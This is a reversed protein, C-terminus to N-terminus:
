EGLGEAPHVPAMKRAATGDARVGNGFTEPKSPKKDDSKKHSKGGKAAYVALGIAVALFFVAFIATRAAVSEIVYGLGLFIAIFAFVLGTFGFMAAILAFSVRPVATSVTEEVRDMARKAELKGLEVSDRVLVRAQDFADRAVDALQTGNSPRHTAPLHAGSGNGNTKTIARTSEM